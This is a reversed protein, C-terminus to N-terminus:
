EGGAIIVALEGIAGDQIEQSEELTQIQEETRKASESLKENADNLNAVKDINIEAIKKAEVAQNIAEQAKLEANTVRIMMQNTEKTLVVTKIGGNLLVGGYVTWGPLDGYKENEDTLLEISALKDPNSFANQVQEATMDKIDIELRGNIVEARIVEYVSNDILRIKM